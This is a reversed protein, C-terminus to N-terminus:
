PLSTKGDTKLATPRAAVLAMVRNPQMHLLAAIQRYDDPLAAADWGHASHRALNAALMVNRVRASHAQAPDMLNLLLEPLRWGITLARQLDRGAFGLVQKHM